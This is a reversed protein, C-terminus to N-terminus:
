VTKMESAVGFVCLSYHHKYWFCACLSTLTSVHTLLLIPVWQLTTFETYLSFKCLGTWKNVPTGGDQWKLSAHISIQKVIHTPRTHATVTGGTTNWHLSCFNSNRWHCGLTPRNWSLRELPTGTYGALIQQTVWHYGLTCQTLWHCELPMGTHVPGALTCQSLSLTIEHRQCMREMRNVVLRHIFLSVQPNSSINGGSSRPEPGYNLKDNYVYWTNHTCKLCSLYAREWFCTAGWRDECWEYWRHVLHSLRYTYLTHLAFHQRRGLMVFFRILDCGCWWM